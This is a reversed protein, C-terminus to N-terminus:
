AVETRGFLKRHCFAFFYIPLFVILSYLVTPLASSVFASLFSATEYRYMIIGCGALADCFCAIFVSILSGLIPMFNMIESIMMSLCVALLFTLPYLIVGDGGLCGLVVGGVVALTCMLSRNVFPAFIVLTLLALQPTAGLMKFYPFVSTQTLCAVLVWICVLINGGFRRKSRIRAM